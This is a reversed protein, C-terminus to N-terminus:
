NKIVDYWMINTLEIHGFISYKLLVGKEDKKEDM